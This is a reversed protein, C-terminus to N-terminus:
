NLTWLTLNSVDKVFIRNGSLTPQTWTESEAVTYKRVMEFATAGRRFIKLEGTEELSFAMDGSYVIAANGAQRTDKKESEVKTCAPVEVLGLGGKTGFDVHM